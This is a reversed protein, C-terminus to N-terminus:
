ENNSGSNGDEVPRIAIIAKKKLQGYFPTILTGSSWVDSSKLKEFDIENVEVYFSRYSTFKTRLQACRFHDLKLSKLLQTMTDVDVSTNFKSMFLSRRKPRMLGVNEAALGITFKLSRKSKPKEMM